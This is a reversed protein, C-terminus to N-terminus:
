TKLDQWDASLVIVLVKVNMCIFINVCKKAMIQMKAEPERPTGLTCINCTHPLELKLCVMSSMYVASIIWTKTREWKTKNHNKCQYM